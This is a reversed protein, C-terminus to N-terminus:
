GLVSFRCSGTLILAQGGCSHVGSKEAIKGNNRVNVVAFGRQGVAQQLQGSRQGRALHLGLHEVGHIQLALAADGDFGVGDAHHVRRLIALSVLEVQDVRGAVHVKRVFDRTRQCGAFARQQNDVSRLTDLGLRQRICIQGDIVSQLNNRDDVLDIQGAGVNRAGLFHDFTCHTEIRGVRDQDAGLGALAHGINELGDDLANRRGLSIGFLPQLRQDEVGPEIRVAAHNHQRAYKLPRKALSLLDAQHPIPAHEVHFRKAYQSGLRDLDVFQARAFDTEQDGIDLVDGVCFDAVGDGFFVIGGDFGQGAEFFDLGHHKGSEIGHVRVLVSLKAFRQLFQPEVVRREEKLRFAGNRESEAEAATKEAKQVHLDNLLAQLALEVQLQDRGRGAHAVLDVLGVTFHDFHVIRRAPQRGLSIAFISSGTIRAM